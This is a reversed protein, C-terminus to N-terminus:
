FSHVHMMHHRDAIGNTFGHNRAKPSTAYVRKALGKREAFPRTGLSSEVMPNEGGSDTDALAASAVAKRVGSLLEKKLKLFREYKM